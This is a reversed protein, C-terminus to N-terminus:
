EKLIIPLYVQYLALYYAYKLDGNTNHFYGIHPYGGEDLALSTRSDYYGLETDVTEIHWGSANQYAYKLDRNTYDYYSIHPYGDENLALSAFLGVGPSDGATEYHWNAGDHWAYYLHDGGYAIHPHEEADLRLSRDTMDSFLKPCDVCEIVWGDAAAPTAQFSLPALLVALLSLWLLSKGKSHIM